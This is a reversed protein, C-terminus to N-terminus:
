NRGTHHFAPSPTIRVLVGVLVEVMVLTWEHLSSTQKGTIKTVFVSTIIGRESLRECSSHHYIFWYHIKVPQRFLWQSLIFDRHLKAIALKKKAACNNSPNGTFINYMWRGWLIFRWSKLSGWVKGRAGGTPKCQHVLVFHGMRNAVHIVVDVTRTCFTERGETTGRSIGM